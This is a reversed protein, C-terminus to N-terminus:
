RSIVRMLSLGFWGLQHKIGVSIPALKIQVLRLSYKRDLSPCSYEIMSSAIFHLEEYPTIVIAFDKRYINFALEFTPSLAQTM